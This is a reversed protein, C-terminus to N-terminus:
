KVIVHVQFMRTDATPGQGVRIYNLRLNTEGPQQAIFRLLQEEISDQARRQTRTTFDQTGDPMLVAQDPWALLQWIFGTTPNRQLDIVLMQGPKLTVRGGHADAGIRIADSPISPGAACGSMFLVSSLLALLLLSLPRQILHTM